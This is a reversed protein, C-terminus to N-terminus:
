LQIADTNIFSINMRENLTPRPALVSCVRSSDPETCDPGKSEPLGAGADDVHSNNNDANGGAAHAQQQHRGQSAIAAAAAAAAAVCQLASTDHRCLQEVTSGHVDRVIAVM